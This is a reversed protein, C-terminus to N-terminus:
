FLRDLVRGLDTEPEFCEFDRCIYFGDKAKLKSTTLPIESSPRALITNPLYNEIVPNEANGVISLQNIGSHFLMAACLWNSYWAPGQLVQSRINQIMSKATERWEPKDFYFSHKLLLECLVSNASPIVDDGLDTKKVFLEGEPDPNFVYFPNEQQGFNQLVYSLIDKAKSLYSDNFTLQYALTLAEALLVYDELFAPITAKQNKFNRYLQGKVWVKSEIFNLIKEATQLYSKEATAQYCKLLGTAALANWSTLIKDDLGPKIRIIREKKLNKLFAELENKFESIKINEVKAFEEPTQTSFLINKGHEWNGGLKINFYKSIHENPIGIRELDDWTYCYYKGEEGESDADLASYLGGEPSLWEDLMFQHTENMKTKLFEDNTVMCTEALLWLLQGNDYLMKEFHPAHWKADVSYRSYGGGVTDYLGGLSMRKVSLMIWDLVEPDHYLHWYHLAFKYVVPLPFKPARNFGGWEMDWTSKFQQIAYHFDSETWDTKKYVPSNSIKIGDALRTAYEYVTEPKSQWLDTLQNLIIEWDKKPFYTGGHFPRGDPLAFINLPWGGRGTLMQIADMYVQDIDPREERDIKINIFNANMIAASGENEFVEHAMVHCWHCASYGISILLPKNEAKAKELAETGWEYWQVPNNAHQQLYPSSAQALNNSPFTKDSSM